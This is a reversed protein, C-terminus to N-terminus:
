KVKNNIPKVALRIRSMITELNKISINRKGSIFSSISSLNVGTLAALDKAKLNLANMREKVVLHIAHPAVSTYQFEAFGVGLRLYELTAVLDKYPIPRTGRIFGNFNQPCLGLDDCIKKQTLGLKLMRQYIDERIMSCLYLLIIM